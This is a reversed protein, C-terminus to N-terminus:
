NNYYPVKVNTGAVNIVLYGLPTAPLASAAGAAGVSTAVQGGISLQGAAASLPNGSVVLQGSAALYSQEVGGRVGSFFKGGIRETEIQLTVPTGAGTNSDRVVMAPLGTAATSRVFRFAGNASATNGSQMLINPGTTGMADLLLSDFGSDSSTGTVAQNGACYTYRVNASTINYNTTCGEFRNLSIVTRDSLSSTTSTVSIGTACNEIQSHTIQNQNSDTINFGISSCINARCGIFTNSNSGAAGIVWGTTANQATVNHFRNYVCFGNPGTLSVSTPFVNVLVDDFESTSVSNLDLGITGTGVNVLKLGRLGVGFIRTGPTAQKIGQAAGNYNLITGNSGCGQLIIGSRLSLSTGYLYTGPVFIVVGGNAPLADIARQIAVADNAVGNGVAGFDQVSVWDREKGQVTRAVAGTGSQIFGVLASGSSAALNAAGVNPVIWTGGTRLYETPVGGLLIVARDGDQMATGSPRTTPNVAYVGPYVMSQFTSVTLTAANAQAQAQTVYSDGIAAVFAAATAKRTQGQGNSYVPVLDGQSLADDSSLNNISTM